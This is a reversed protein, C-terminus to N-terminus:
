GGLQFPDRAPVFRQADPSTAPLIDRVYWELGRDQRWDRPYGLSVEEFRVGHKELLGSRMMYYTPMGWINTQYGQRISDLALARPPRVLSAAVVGAGALCQRRTVRLYRHTMTSKRIM